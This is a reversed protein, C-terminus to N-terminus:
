NSSNYLCFPFIIILSTLLGILGFMRDLLISITTIGIKYGKQIICYIRISDGGVTSPLFQNFFLGMWFIQHCERISIRIGKFELLIKWRYVAIFVQIILIFLALILFYFNSNEIIKLIEFFSFKTFLFYFFISSVLAKLLFILYKKNSNIIKVIKM